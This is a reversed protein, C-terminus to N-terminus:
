LDISQLGSASRPHRAATAARAFINWLGVQAVIYMGFLFSIEGSVIPWVTFLSEGGGIIYLAFGCLMLTFHIGQVILFALRARRVRLDAAVLAILPFFLLGFPFPLSMLFFFATGHGGGFTNLSLFFFVAAYTIGVLGVIVRMAVHMQDTM